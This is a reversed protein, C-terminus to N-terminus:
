GMLIKMFAPGRMKEKGETAESLSLITDDKGAITKLDEKTAGVLSVSTSSTKKMLEGANESARHWDILKDPDGAVDLPIKSSDALINRFFRGYILLDLQFSTLKVAPLGFFDIIHEGTLSLANQLFPSIAIHKISSEDIVRLRKQLEISTADFEHQELAEFSEKTFFLEKCEPDTFLNEAIHTDNVQKSAFQEATGGILSNREMALVGLKNREEKLQVNLQEVQSPLVQAAKTKELSQVYETAVLLEEEKKKGWLGQAELQELREKETHIGRNKVGEIAALFESDLRGQIVPTVHRLYAPRGLVTARTYGAIIDAYIARLERQDRM